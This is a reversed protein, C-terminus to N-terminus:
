AVAELKVEGESLFCCKTFLSLDLPNPTRVDALTPLGNAALEYKRDIQSILLIIHGAEKAWARLTEIQQNIEPSSRRQDLVQLYDIAVLTGRPKGNLQEVIHDADIEDSTDLLFTTGLAQPNCGISELRHLVDTDNYDLTFFAGEAGGKIAETIIELAMLTKGHEPRAGLLVLDGQQLESLIRIAPREAAYQSALLSWSTFGEEKAIQNLAENLPVGTKRALLKAQRKLRYIPASLRM